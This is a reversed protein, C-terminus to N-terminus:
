LAYRILDFQNVGMFFFMIWGHWKRWLNGRKKKLSRVTFDCSIKGYYKGGEIVLFHHERKCCFFIIYNLIRRELQLVFRPFSHAGPNFAPSFAEDTENEWQGGLIARGVNQPTRLNISEFRPSQPQMLGLVQRPLGGKRDFINRMMAVGDSKEPTGSGRVPLEPWGCVPGLRYDLGSSRSYSLM